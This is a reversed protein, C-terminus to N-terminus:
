LGYGQFLLGLLWVLLPAVWGPPILWWSPGIRGQNPKTDTARAMDM